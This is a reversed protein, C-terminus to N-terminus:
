RPSPNIARIVRRLAGVIKDQLAFSSREYLYASHEEDERRRIESSIMEFEHQRKWKRVLDQDIQIM